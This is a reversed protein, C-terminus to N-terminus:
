REKKGAAWEWLEKRTKSDCIIRPKDKKSIQKASLLLNTLKMIKGHHKKAAKRMAIDKEPSTAWTHMSIAM